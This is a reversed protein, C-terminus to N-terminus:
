LLHMVDYCTCHRAGLEYAVQPVRMKCLKTEQHHVLRPRADPSIYPGGPYRGLDENILSPELRGVSYLVPSVENILGDDSSDGATFNVESSQPPGQLRDRSRKRRMRGIVNRHAAKTECDTWNSIDDIFSINEFIFDSQQEVTRDRQREYRVRPM